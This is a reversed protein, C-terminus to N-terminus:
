WLGIDDSDDPKSNKDKITSLKLKKLSIIKSKADMASSILKSYSSLADPMGYNFITQPSTKKDLYVNLKYKIKDAMDLCDEMMLGLDKEEKSIEELLAEYENKDELIQKVTDTSIESM